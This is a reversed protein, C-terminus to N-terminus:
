FRSSVRCSYTRGSSASELPLGAAVPLYRARPLAPVRCQRRPVLGQGLLRRVRHGVYHARRRGHGV